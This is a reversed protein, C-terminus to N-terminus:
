WVGGISIKKYLCQFLSYMILFYNYWAKPIYFNSFDFTIVNGTYLSYPSCFIAYLIDMKMVFATILFLFTCFWDAGSTQVIQEEM